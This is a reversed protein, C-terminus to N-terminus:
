APVGRPETTVNLCYHMGMTFYVYARGPPGFMVQNRVTRGSYALSAPDHQGRYAETEVIIGSLRQGGRVRVLMCGVLRRAVEPTYGAFFSRGLRGQRVSM